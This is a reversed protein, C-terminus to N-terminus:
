KEPIEQMHCNVYNISEGRYPLNHDFEFPQYPYSDQHDDRSDFWVMISNHREIVHYKKLKVNGEYCKKLYAGDIKKMTELEHYEHKEVHKKILSESVM